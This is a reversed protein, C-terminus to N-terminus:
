PPIGLYPASGGCCPDRPTAHAPPNIREPLPEGQHRATADIVVGAYRPDHRDCSPDLLECYRRIADGGHCYPASEPLPCFPCRNM